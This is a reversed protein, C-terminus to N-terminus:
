RENDLYLTKYPMTQDIPAGIVPVHSTSTNYVMGELGLLSSLKYLSPM